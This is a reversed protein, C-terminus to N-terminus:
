TGILEAVKKKVQLADGDVEADVTIEMNLCKEQDEESLHGAAIDVSLIQYPDGPHIPIRGRDLETARFRRYNPDRSQVEAPYTASQFSLCCKPITLTCAYERIRTSGSLNEITGVLRMVKVKGDAIPMQKQTQIFVRAFENKSPTQKQASAPIHRPLGNAVRALDRTTQSAVDQRVDL